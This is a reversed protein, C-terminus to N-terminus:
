ETIQSVVPSNHKLLGCGLLVQCNYQFTIWKKCQLLSSVSIKNERNQGFILTGKVPHQVTVLIGANKNSSKELMEFAPIKKTKIHLFILIHLFFMIFYIGFFGMFDLFVRARCSSQAAGRTGGNPPYAGKLLQFKLRLLQFKKPQNNWSKEKFSYFPRFILLLILKRIHASSSPQFGESHRYSPTLTRYFVLWYLLLFFPELEYSNSCNVNQTYSVVKSYRALFLITNYFKNISM